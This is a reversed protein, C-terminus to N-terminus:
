GTPGPGSRNGVRSSVHSVKRSTRSHRVRGDIWRITIGGHAMVHEGAGMWSVSPAAYGGM